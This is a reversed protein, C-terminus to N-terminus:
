HYVSLIVLLFGKKRYAPCLGNDCHSVDLGSPGGLLFLFPATSRPGPRGLSGALLQKQWVGSDRKSMCPGSPPPPGVQSVKILIFDSSVKQM